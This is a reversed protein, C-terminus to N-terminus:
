QAATLLHDASTTDDVFIVMRFAEGTSCKFVKQHRFGRNESDRKARINEYNAPMETHIYNWFQITIDRPCGFSRWEASINSPVILKRKV